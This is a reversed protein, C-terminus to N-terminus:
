FLLSHILNDHGTSIFLHLIVLLKPAYVVYIQFHKILRGPIQQKACIKDTNYKTATAEKQYIDPSLQFIQFLPLIFLEIIFESLKLHCGFDEVLFDM